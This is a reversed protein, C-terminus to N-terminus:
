CRCRLPTPIRMEVDFLLTAKQLDIDGFACGLRCRRRATTFQELASCGSLLLSLLLVHLLMVTKM